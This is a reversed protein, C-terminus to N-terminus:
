LNFVRVFCELAAEFGSSSQVWIEYVTCYALLVQCVFYGFYSVTTDVGVCSEIFCGPEM